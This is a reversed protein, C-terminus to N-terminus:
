KKGELYNVYQLSGLRIRLPISTYKEFQLEKKCFFALQLTYFAPNICSISTIPLRSVIAKKSLFLCNLAEPNAAIIPYASKFRVTAPVAVSQFSQSLGEENAVLSLCVVIIKYFRQLM